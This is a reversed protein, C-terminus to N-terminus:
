PYMHLLAYLVGNHYDHAYARVDGGGRAWRLFLMEQSPTYVTCTNYAGSQRPFDFIKIKVGLFFTLSVIQIRWLSIMVITNWFGVPKIGIRACTNCGHQHASEVRQGAESSIVHMVIFVVLFLLVAACRKFM